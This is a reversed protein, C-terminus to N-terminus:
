NSENNSDKLCDILLEEIREAPPPFCSRILDVMLGEVYSVVRNLSEDKRKAQEVQGWFFIDNKKASLEGYKFCEKGYQEVLNILEKQYGVSKENTGMSDAKEGVRM